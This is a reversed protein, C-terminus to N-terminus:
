KPTAEAPQVQGEGILYKAHCDSCAQYINGGATFLAETDKVETARLAETAAESLNRAKAMWDDQNRARGPLMLLNASEAVTAASNRVATWEDDTRPAIEQKGEASVITGVSAWVVDAAPDIVWNMLQKLDTVNNFTATAPPAPAAPPQPSGCGFLALVGIQVSIQVGSLVCRRMTRMENVGMIRIGCPSSSIVVNAYRWECDGCRAACKKALAIMRFRM